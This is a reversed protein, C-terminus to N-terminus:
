ARKESSNSGPSVEGLAELLAAMTAEGYRASVLEDARAPALGGAILAQRYSRAVRLEPDAWPGEAPALSPRDFRLMVLITGVALLGMLLGGLPSLARIATAFVTLGLWYYAIIFTFERNGRVTEAAAVAPTEPPTPSGSASSTM